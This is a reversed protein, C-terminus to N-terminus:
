VVALESGKKGFVADVGVKALKRRVEHLGQNGSLVLAKVVVASDVKAGEGAGHGCQTAVTASGGDGLLEGLLHEVLGGSAQTADKLLEFFPNDGHLELRAVGFVLENRHVEVLKVEQVLADSDM